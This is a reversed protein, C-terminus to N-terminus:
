GTERYRSQMNDLKLQEVVIREIAEPSVPKTFIEDVGMMKMMPLYEIKGSVAIIFATNKEKTIERVFEIGDLVPMLVDLIVLDPPNDRYAALGQQGNGATQIECGIDSLLMRFSELIDPDDEIILIQKV